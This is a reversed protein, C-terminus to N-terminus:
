FASLADSLEHRTKKAVMNVDLGTLLLERAQLTIESQKPSESSALVQALYAMALGAVTQRFGPAHTLCLRHIEKLWVRAPNQPPIQMIGAKLLGKSIWADLTSGRLEIWDEVWGM